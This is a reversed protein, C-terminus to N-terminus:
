TNPAGFSLRVLIPYMHSSSRSGSRADLSLDSWESTTLAGFLKDKTTTHMEFHHSYSFVLFSPAFLTIPRKFEYFAMSFDFTHDFFTNWM